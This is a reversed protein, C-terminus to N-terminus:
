TKRIIKLGYVFLFRLDSMREKIKSLLELDCENFNVFVPEQDIVEVEDDCNQNNKKVIEIIDQDKLAEGRKFILIKNAEFLITVFISDDDEGDSSSDSCDSISEADSEVLSKSDKLKKELKSFDFCKISYKLYTELSIDNDILMQKNYLKNRVPPKDYKLARIKLNTKFKNVTEEVETFKDHKLVFEHEIYREVNDTKKSLTVSGSCNTSKCLWNISKKNIRHRKFLYGNLCLDHADYNPNELEIISKKFWNNPIYKINFDM